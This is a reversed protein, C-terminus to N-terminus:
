KWTRESVSTTQSFVKWTKKGPLNQVHFINVMINIFKEEDEM